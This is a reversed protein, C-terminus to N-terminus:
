ILIKALILLFKDTWTKATYYKFKLVFISLIIKRSNAWNIVELPFQCNVNEKKTHITLTYGDLCKIGYWIWTWIIMYVM